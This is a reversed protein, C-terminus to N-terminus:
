GVSDALIISARSSVGKTRSTPRSAKGSSGSRCFLHLFVSAEAAARMPDVVRADPARGVERRGPLRARRRQTVTASTSVANSVWFKPSASPFATGSLTSMIQAFVSMHGDLGWCGGWGSPPLVFLEGGLVDGGSWGYELLHIEYAVACLPRTPDTTLVAMLHLPDVSCLAGQGSLLGLHRLLWLAFQGTQVPVDM